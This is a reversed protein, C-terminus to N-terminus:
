DYKAKLIDKNNNNNKNNKNNKNNNNRKNNNKQDESALTVVFDIFEQNPIEQM